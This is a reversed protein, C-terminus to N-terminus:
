DWDPGSPIKGARIQERWNALRKADDSNAWFRASDQLFALVAERDNQEGHELLQRALRLDRYNPAEPPGPAKGAARLHARASDPKNQLLAIRGLLENAGFVLTGYFPANTDKNQDLLQTAVTRAEDLHNTGSEVLLAAFVSQLLPRFSAAVDRPDPQPVKSIISNAERLAPLVSAAAAKRPEGQM